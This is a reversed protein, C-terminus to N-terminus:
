RIGGTNVLFTQTRLGWQTFLTARALLLEKFLRIPLRDDPEKHDFITSGRGLWHSTVNYGKTEEGFM